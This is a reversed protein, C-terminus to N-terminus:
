KNNITNLLIDKEEKTLVEDTTGRSVKKAYLYSFDNNHINHLIFGNRDEDLMVLIFSLKGGANDFADYKNLTMKSYSKKMQLEVADIKNLVDTQIKKMFEIEEKNKLIHEDLPIGKSGKNLKKYKSKFMSLNIMTVFLLILLVICSIMLGLIFENQSSEIFPILHEM